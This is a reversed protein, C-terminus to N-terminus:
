SAPRPAQSPCIPKEFYHAAGLTYAMQKIEANGHGTVLIVKTGPQNKKIAHLISIGDTNNIGELRMDAIVAFYDHASIFDIAAVLSECVDVAMGEKEILKRYAFLIAVEDDVILVKRKYDTIALETQTLMIQIQNM